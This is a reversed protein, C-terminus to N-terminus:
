AAAIAEIELLWEEEYIGTIVVVIAPYCDGLVEHRIDANTERYKRDSLYITVKVLNEKTMGADEIIRLVNQWTLRAQAAFGEPVSGDPAEPVQGSVYLIRSFDSLLTGESYSRSRRDVHTIKVCPFPLPQQLPKDLCTGPIPAAGVTAPQYDV